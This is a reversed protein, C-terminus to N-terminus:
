DRRRRRQRPAAALIAEAVGRIEGGHTSGFCRLMVSRGPLAGPHRRADSAGPWYGHERYFSGCAQAAEITPWRRRRRGHERPLIGAALLAADFGDFHQRITSYSPLRNMARCEVVLPPRGYYRHFRQLGSIVQRRSWKEGPRPLPASAADEEPQPSVPVCLDASVLASDGLEQELADTSAPSPAPRDNLLRYWARWFLLGLWRDVEWRFIERREAILFVLEEGVAEEADHVSRRRRRALRGALSRLRERDFGVLAAALDRDEPTRPIPKASYAVQDLYPEPVEALALAITAAM